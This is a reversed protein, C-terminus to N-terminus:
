NLEHLETLYYNLVEDTKKIENDLALKLSEPSVDVRHYKVDDKITAIFEHSQAKSANGFCMKQHCELTEKRRRLKDINKKIHIAQELTKETM